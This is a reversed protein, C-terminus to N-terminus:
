NSKYKRNSESESEYTYRLVKPKETGAAENVQRHWEKRLQELVGKASPDDIKNHLEDPDVSLHYLEEYVPAESRQYATAFYGYQVMDFDHVQYLLPNLPMDFKKAAKVKERAPITNNEYYRIYKWEKNQVAECRPNGFQTSWLNETFIYKRVEEQGALLPGLSKGQYSDPVAIRARELMTPAIDITQVLANSRKAIMKDDLLPDYWIMPVHTTQEYCLAKGGLGYQGMFLGHDSTFVIVTNESLGEKELVQRLNGVFRDIGTLAQLQRTYIDRTDAPTDVYDYGSQRDETRLLEEPLKPETIDKKAIYHDPLPIEVERYLSKYLDDDTARMEMSRTGASHPLNFCVSLMFPQDAPRDKLFRMAGDEKESSSLFYDVGEGIIEIQTDQEANSFIEHRDKPYFGLHGHGAYWFDFSQEMVGSEYGGEGVPVHNKGIWGTFYGHDRFRVPYSDEWATPSLSTGSNFNIGHQREYQSLLISARSPTCIASTVHANTFLVGEAALQDLNPTSVIDNGTCGMYGYPQDDTLIFIFNPRTTNQSKAPQCGLVVSLVLFLIMRIKM